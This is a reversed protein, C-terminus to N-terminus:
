RFSTYDNFFGNNKLYFSDTNANLGTVDDEPGAVEIDYHTIYLPVLGLTRCTADGLLHMGIQKISVAATGIGTVQSEQTILSGSFTEAGLGCQADTINGNVPFSAGSPYSGPPVAVGNITMGYTTQISSCDIQGAVTPDIACNLPEINSKWTVLGGLLSGAATSATGVGGDLTATYSASTSDDVTGLNYVEVGLVTQSASAAPVDNSGSTLTNSQDVPAITVTQPLLGLVTKTVTGSVADAESSVQATQASSNQGLGLAVSVLATMLITTYPTTIRAEKRNTWM